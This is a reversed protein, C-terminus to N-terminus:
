FKQTVILGIYIIKKKVKKQNVIKKLTVLIFDGVQAISTKGFVKICKSWKAGSNDSVKLCSGKQIM